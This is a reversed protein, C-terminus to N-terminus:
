PKIWESQQGLSSVGNIISLLKCGNTNFRGFWHKRSLATNAPTHLNVAWRAATRCDRIAKSESRKPLAKILIWLVRKCEGHRDWQERVPRIATSTTFCESTLLLATRAESGVKASIGAEVSAGANVAVALLLLGSTVVHRVATQAKRRMTVPPRRRFWRPIGIRGFVFGLIGGLTWFLIVGCTVPWGVLEACLFTGLILLLLTWAILMAEIREKM